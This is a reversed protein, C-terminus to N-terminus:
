CALRMERRWKWFFVFCFHIDWLDCLFEFEGIGFKEDTFGSFETAEAIDVEIGWDDADYAAKENSVTRYGNETKKEM